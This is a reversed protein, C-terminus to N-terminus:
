IESNCIKLVMLAPVGSQQHCLHPLITVVPTGFDDGCPKSVQAKIHINSWQKLDTDYLLSSSCM